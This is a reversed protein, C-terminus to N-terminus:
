EPCHLLVEQLIRRILLIIKKFLQLTNFSLSCLSATFDPITKLRGKEIRATFLLKM